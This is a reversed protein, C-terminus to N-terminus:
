TTGLRVFSAKPSIQGGFCRTDSSVSSSTASSSRSCQEDTQNSASGIFATVLVASIILAGFYLALSGSVASRARGCRKQEDEDLSEIFADSHAGMFFPEVTKKQVCQYLARFLRELRLFYADLGWLILTPIIAALALGRSSKEIAFGFLVGAITLAWGKILFSDTSLRSIVGQVLELHKIQQDTFEEYTAV